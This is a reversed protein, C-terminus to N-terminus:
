NMGLNEIQEEAYSIMENTMREMWASMFQDDVHANHHNNSHPNNSHDNNNHSHDDSSNNTSHRGNNSKHGNNSRNYNNRINDM